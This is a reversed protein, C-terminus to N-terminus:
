EREVPPDDLGLTGGPNMIGHPDFHRKVAKLAAMQEGGLHAAMLPGMMKGTGHHHSLSGGAEAIRAIVGRQFARYDDVTTMPTMFIFYLNTGQPYFHSAHTLCVTNPRAKIYTRVVGHVQEVRDWCVSTELTDILIGMDHLDDRMYPDSFRGHAWRRAPYGSLWVGKLGRCIRGSQRAVTRAFARHGDAQGILLCRKMPHLGRWQFFREVPAHGLGYMQIAAETEEADSIRLMSPMGFEGQTIQRAAAVASPWDPMMYAFRRSNEPMFRFIKLTASTLVGFAGESGKMLDNIKPGTAAAPFGATEFSGVPTVYSQSVVLDYMDGYYSSQQGAGLAAIWGGVTSFEFSQPFHGGTYRHQANFRTPADNLAAEYAPGMIGAEVTVTQNAENFALVRNMHTSMVLTVGGQVPQVGLVVSSGGGFVTVPIHHEHCYAVVAKVAESDRPHLVLDSVTRTQGTRLQLIEEVSQGHAYRTRSFPDQRANEEGVIASLQSIHDADLSRPPSLDAPVPQDGTQRPTRWDEPAMALRSHLFRVLGPKPHHFRDPAGWKFISRFSGDVPSQAYWRPAKLPNVM